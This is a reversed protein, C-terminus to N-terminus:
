ISDDLHQLFEGLAKKWDPMPPFDNLRLASHEFISYKPRPAPRPFEETTVPQVDVKINSQSFIEKAFEYWSCSGSNSVHYTGYRETKVLNSICEALDVTYTPCGVQDHVVSLTDRDQVLKLMTKVFNNGHKGFVWSTRVIFFKSHHERVFQEGALKSKGYVGLPSTVDFETYPTEGQGNFVYDTSVYVLKANVKEAAVAINRTGIGNVLFAQDVETEALDVATYAACHIIIDPQIEKVKQNVQDQNTIDLEARGFGYVEYEEVKLRSVMDVGLQGNAGTVVIKLM